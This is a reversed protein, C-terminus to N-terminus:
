FVLHTMFSCSLAKWFCNTRRASAGPTSMAASLIGLPLPLDQSAACRNSLHKVGPSSGKDAKLACFVIQVQALSDAQEPYAGVRHTMGSVGVHDM